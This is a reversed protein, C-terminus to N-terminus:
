KFWLGSQRPQTLPCFCSWSTSVPRTRCHYDWSIKSHAEVWTVSIEGKVREPREMM